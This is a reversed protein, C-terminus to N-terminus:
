KIVKGEKVENQKNKKKLEEQIDELLENTSKGKVFRTAAGVILLLIILELGGM